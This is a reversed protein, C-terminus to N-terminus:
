VGSIVSGIHKGGQLRLGALYWLYEVNGKPGKIPCAMLGKEEIELTRAALRLLGIAEQRHAEQRVVGKPAKKPGLEFQPKILAIVEFPRRLCALVPALVKALSIFSVDIVALDLSGADEGFLAPALDRAHTREMGVVRPDARLSADLQGRGVDVAYVKRAGRQLLCDTFGGTSAGVDLATRGEVLVPFEDLAAALKLGGRSVYPVADPVVEVGIDPAVRMGAKPRPHGEVRVKGAMLAAQAKARTPFLGRDVLLVDLRQREM